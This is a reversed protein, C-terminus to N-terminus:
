APANAEGAPDTREEGTSIAAQQTEGAPAEPTAAKKGRGKKPTATAQTAEAPAAKAIPQPAVGKTGAYLGITGKDRIVYFPLKGAEIAKELGLLSMKLASDSGAGKGYVAEVAAAVAVQRGLNRQLFRILNARHTGDRTTNLLVNDGAWNPDAKAKPAAEAKPAAAPAEDTKQAAKGGKAAKPTSSKKAMTDETNAPAQQGPQTAPARSISAAAPPVNKVKEEWATFAKELAECRAVATAKDAFKKVPKFEALRAGEITLPVGALNANYRGIIENYAAACATLSLSAFDTV